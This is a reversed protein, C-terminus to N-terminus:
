EGSPEIVPDHEEWEEILQGFSKADTVGDGTNQNPKVNLSGM